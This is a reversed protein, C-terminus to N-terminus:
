SYGRDTAHNQNTLHAGGRFNIAERIVAHPRSSVKNLIAAIYEGLIGLFMLQVGGFFFMGIILPAFGLEFQSWNLLKLVFYLFGIFFSLLAAGVGILTALRLPLRSHATLGVIALDMLSFFNNKTRGKKRIPQAFPILHVRHGLESVLGRIYPVPDNIRIIQDIVERDFLGFGTVQRIVPAESLSALLDYYFGRLRYKLISEESSVKQAMVVKFGERWHNLFDRILEPPDQLDSAMMIIAEGQAYSLANYVSRVQGFNRTSVLVKVRKDHAALLRLVEVTNDTSSNDAFIIEYELVGCNSLEKSIRDYLEEVNDEENFCGTVISLM